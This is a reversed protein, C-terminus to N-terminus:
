ADFNYLFCPIKGSYSGTWLYRMSQSRMACDYSCTSCLEPGNKTKRLEALIPSSLWLDRINNNFVNGIKFKEEELLPFPFINGDKNIFLVSRGERDASFPAEKKSEQVPRSLNPDFHCNIKITSKDDVRNLSNRADRLCSFYPADMDVSRGQKALIGFIIGKAGVSESFTVIKDLYHSNLPTVVCSLWLNENYERIAHISRVFRDFIRRGVISNFDNGLANVSIQISFFSEITEKHKIINQGPIVANTIINQVLGLSKAYAVMEPFQKNVFTEGGVWQLQPVGWQYATDIIQKANKIPMHADSTVSNSAEAYCFSCSFNCAKTIQIQISNPAPPFNKSWSYTPLIRSAHEHCTTGEPITWLRNDKLLSIENSNPKRQVLIGPALSYFGFFLNKM